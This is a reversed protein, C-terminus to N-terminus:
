VSLPAGGTSTVVHEEYIEMGMFFGPQRGQASQSTAPPFGQLGAVSIWAGGRRKSHLLGAELYERSAGKLRMSSERPLEHELEPVIRRKEM